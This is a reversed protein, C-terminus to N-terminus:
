DHASYDGTTVIVDIDANLNQIYQLTAQFLKEPTDCKISGFPKAQASPTQPFGHEEHCCINYECYISAKETYHLDLHIDTLHLINLTNKNQNKNQILEQKSRVVYKEM